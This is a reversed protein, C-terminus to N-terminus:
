IGRDGDFVTHEGIAIRGADPHRVGAIAALTLSKGSGSHGFLVLTEDGSELRVDLAFTGLRLRIDIDLV